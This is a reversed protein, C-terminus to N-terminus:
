TRYEIPQDFKIKILAGVSVGEEYLYFRSPEEQSGGRNVELPLYVKATFNNGRITYVKKDCDPKEKCPDCSICPNNCRTIVESLDSNCGSAGAVGFSCELIPKGSQPPLTGMRGLGLAFVNNEGHCPYRFDFRWEGGEIVTGKEPIISSAFDVTQFMTELFYVVGLNDDFKIPKGKKDVSFNSQHKSVTGGPFIFANTIYYSGQLRPASGDHTIGNGDNLAFIYSPDEVLVLLQLKKTRHTKAMATSFLLVFSFILGKKSVYM